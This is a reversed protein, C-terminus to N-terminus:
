KSALSKLAAKLWMEVDAEPSVSPAADILADRAENSSYGLSQLALFADDRATTKWLRSPPVSAPSKKKSRSSSAESSGAPSVESPTQGTETVTSTDITAAVATEAEATEQREVAVRVIRLGQKLLKDRLEIVLRQATKRGIGPIRTLAMVDESIIARQVDTASFSSLIGLGVKPGIGSVELLLRFFELEEESLFGYLQAQDERLHFYTHILVEKGERPLSGFLTAPVFVRYGVGSVDVLLCDEGRGVLRGRLFAIM